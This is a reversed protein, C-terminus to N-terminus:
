AVRAGNWPQYTAKASLPCAITKDAKPDLAPRLQLTTDSVVTFGNPYEGSWFNMRYWDDGYATVSQASATGTCSLAAGFVLTALLAKM